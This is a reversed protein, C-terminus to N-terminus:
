KVNIVVKVKQGKNSGAHPSMTISATGKTNGTITYDFRCGGDIHTQKLKYKIVPMTGFAGNMEVAFDKFDDSNMGYFTIVTSEGVGITYSAPGDYVIEPDSTTPEPVPDPSPTPAPTPVPTPTPEPEPTPTPTPTPTDGDVDIGKAKCLAYLADTNVRARNYEDKLYDNYNM